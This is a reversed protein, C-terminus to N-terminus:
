ILVIKANVDVGNPSINCLKLNKLGYKILYIYVYQAHKGLILLKM